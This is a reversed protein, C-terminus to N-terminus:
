KFPVRIWNLEDIVLCVAFSDAVVTSHVAFVFHERIGRMPPTQLPCLATSRSKRRAHDITVYHRLPRIILDNVGIM